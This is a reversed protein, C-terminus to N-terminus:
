KTRKALDLVLNRFFEANDYYKEISEVAKATLEDLRTRARDIDLISTYTNKHKKEDRVQPRGWKM